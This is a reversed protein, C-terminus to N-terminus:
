KARAVVGPANTTGGGFASSIYWGSVKPRPAVSRTTTSYFGGSCPLAAPPPTLIYGLARAGPVYPLYFLFAGPPSLCQPAHCAREIHAAGGPSIM